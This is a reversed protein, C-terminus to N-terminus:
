TFFLGMMQSWLRVSSTGQATLKGELGDPYASIGCLHQMEKKGLTPLGPPELLLLGCM